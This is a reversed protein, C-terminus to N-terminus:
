GRALRKLRHAAAANVAGPPATGSLIADCQRVSEMAQHRVAAPTLGGIHPTAIVRPHAALRPSPMQDPARGVDLAAGAIRGTDLAALLAAEDVLNGRSANIFFADPKMAAFAAGDFLNETADTAVALCVVFDARKLLEGMDVHSVGKATEGIHPDSVLVTMGFALALDALARGIAGYGVIGITSGKLQRGM